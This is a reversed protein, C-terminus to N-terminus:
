GSAIQSRSPSRMHCRGSYSGTGSMAPVIAMVAHTEELAVDLGRLGLQGRDRVDALDRRALRGARDRDVPLLDGSDRALRDKAGRLAGTELHRGEAVVLLERRRGRAAHTEDVDFALV